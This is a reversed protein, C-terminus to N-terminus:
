GLCVLFNPGSLFAVINHEGESGKDFKIHQSRKLHRRNVVSRIVVEEGVRSRLKTRYCIPPGDVQSTSSLRRKNSAASNRQGHMHLIERYM